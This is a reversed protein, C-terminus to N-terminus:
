RLCFATLLPTRKAHISGDRRQHVIPEAFNVHAPGVKFPCAADRVPLTLLLTFRHRSEVVEGGLCWNLDRLSHCFDNPARVSTATARCFRSHGLSQVFFASRLQGGM